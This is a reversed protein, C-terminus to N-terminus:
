AAPVGFAVALLTVLGVLLASQWVYDGLRNEVIQRWVPGPDGWARWGVVLVPVLVLLAPLWILLTSLRPASRPM